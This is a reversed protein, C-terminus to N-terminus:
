ENAEVSKKALEKIKKLLKRKKDQHGVKSLLKGYRKVLEFITHEMEREEVVSLTKKFTRTTM